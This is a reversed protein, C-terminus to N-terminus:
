MLKRLLETKERIADDWYNEVRRLEEESYGERRKQDLDDVKRKRTQNLENQCEEFEIARKQKGEPPSQRPEPNKNLEEIRKAFKATDAEIKRRDREIELPDLEEQRKIDNRLKGTEFDLKLERLTREKPHLELDDESLRAEKEMKNYITAMRLVRLREEATKREERLIFREKLRRIYHAVLSPPENRARELEDLIFQKDWRPPVELGGSSEEDKV